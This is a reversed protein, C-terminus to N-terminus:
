PVSCDIRQTSVLVTGQLQYRSMLETIEAVKQASVMVTLNQNVQRAHGMFAYSDSIRELDQLMRVQEETEIFFRYLRVNDYRAVSPDTTVCGLLVAVILPAILFM